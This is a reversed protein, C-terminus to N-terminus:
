ILTQNNPDDWATTLSSPLASYIATIKGQVVLDTIPRYRNNKKNNQDSM